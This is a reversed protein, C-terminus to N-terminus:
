GHLVPDLLGEFDVGINQWDVIKDLLAYVTDFIDSTSGDNENLALHDDCGRNNVEISHISPDSDTTLTPPSLNQPAPMCNISPIDSDSAEFANDVAYEAPRSDTQVPAQVDTLTILNGSDRPFDKVTETAVTGQQEDNTWENDTQVDLKIMKNGIRVCYTGDSHPIVIQLQSDNVKQEKPESNEPFRVHM